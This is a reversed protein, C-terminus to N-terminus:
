DCYGVFSTYFCSATPGYQAAAIKLQKIMKFELTQYQRVRNNKQDMIGFTPFALMDSIDQGRARIVTRELLLQHIESDSSRGGSSVRKLEQLENTLKQLKIEFELKHLKM